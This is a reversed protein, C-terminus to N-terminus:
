ITEKLKWLDTLNEMLQIMNLFIHMPKKDFLDNIAVVELEDSYNDIFSKLVQRGIRGFGNIGVQVKM